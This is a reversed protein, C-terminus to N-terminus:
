CSKIPLPSTLLKNEKDFFSKDAFSVTTANDLNIHKLAKKIDDISLNLVKTRFADRMEYTLRNREWLYATIGYSGPKIPTDLDQIISLKADFLDQEDFDCEKAKKFRELTQSLNPDRYSSFTFYGKSQSFGAGSGYAGGKERIEKHLYTNQMLHSAALLAPADEHTYGICPFATVTFAVPSAITRAQSSIEEVSFDSDFPKLEKASLDLVGYFNNEKLENFEPDDCTVILDPKQEFIEKWGNFLQTLMEASKDFDKSLEKIMEFYTFGYFIDQLHASKRVSSSAISHAYRMASKTLKSELYVHQKKLLDIIREKDSFDLTKMLDQFFEFLEKSYRNLAKGKIGLVPRVLDPDDVPTGLSIYAEIGGIHANVYELNEQWDRGGAGVETLASTFLSLYPLHERKIEPLPFTLDAYIVQNTFISSFYVSGDKKLPYKKAGSPIDEIQLNPLCDLSQKEVEEQYVKLKEAQNILIQVQNEKLKKTIGELSKKEQEQELQMQEKNPTMELQVFHPNDVFYEFILTSLYEPDKCRNRLTKFLSHIMLGSEPDLGHQKLLGSRFFLGLGYPYSNGTIESRSFELQHIAAEIQDPTFKEKVINKLTSFILERIKDADKANCGKCVIIWPVESMETDLYAEASKALGSQTLARNLPSADTEMLLCDILSLALVHDQKEISTTLFGFGLVDNGAMEQDEPFPFTAKAFKPSTFKKQKPIPSATKKPFTRNLIHRELFDLNEEMPINGYFYFVAHSPHYFNQHFELLEDYTLSPIDRPDGGSNNAYTLDPMLHSSMEQWFRSDASAMAGKMENFVVGKYALSSKDEPNEFELRHGEQLFSLQSLTPHFVADLYVELLNYFDKKVQSSAPYCTFDSGTFANMFTNLSRRTMSFFPDKVPYKLSGCLVMHELIHAVGNSSSPLTQFSICFVNETDDSELQIIKAGSKPHVAEILTVNLEEIPLHKTAEFGKYTKGAQNLTEPM